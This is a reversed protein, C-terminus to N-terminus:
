CSLLWASIKDAWMKDGAANQHLGDNNMWQLYNYQNTCCAHFFDLYPIGFESYVEAIASNIQLLTRKTGNATDDWNIRYPPLIGYVIINRNNTFLTQLANRLGTKLPEINITSYVKDNTGAFVVIKDIESFDINSLINYNIMKKNYSDQTIQGQSLQNDLATQLPTFDNAVIQSVLSCFGTDYYNDTNSGSGYIPAGAFSCDYVTQGIRKEVLHPLEMLQSLSDGFWAIKKGKTIITSSSIVDINEIINDLGYVEGTIEITPVTSPNNSLYLYFYNADLPIDYWTNKDFSTGKIDENSSNKCFVCTSGVAHGGDSLMFAWQNGQSAKIQEGRFKSVDLLISYNSSVWKGSTLSCYINDAANPIELIRGNVKDKVSDINQQITTLESEISIVKQNVGEKIPTEFEFTPITDGTYFVYFEIADDPITYFSNLTISGQLDTNNVDKCYIVKQGNDVSIFAYQVGINTKIKNSHQKSVDVIVCHSNENPADLWSGRSLMIYKNTYNTIEAPEGSIQYVVNEIKSLRDEIGEETGYVFMAPMYTPVNNGLYLYLYNADNPITLVTFNTYDSISTGNCLTVSTEDSDILFAYNTGTNIVNNIIIKNGRFSVVDILISYNSNTWKATSSVLYRNDATDPISIKKGSLKKTFFSQTVSGDTNSGTTDYLKNLNYVVGKVRMKTVNTSM